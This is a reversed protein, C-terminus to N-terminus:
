SETQCTVLLCTQNMHMCVAECGTRESWHKDSSNASGSVFVLRFSRPVLTSFVDFTTSIDTSVALVTASFGGGM